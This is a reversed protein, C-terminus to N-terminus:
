PSTHSRPPSTSQPSPAPRLSLIYRILAQAQEETLHQDPMTMPITHEDWHTSTIFRRLSQASLGARAAIQYFSPTRIELGPPFEQDHAVVHCTSCILQALHEGRQVQPSQGGEAQLASGLLALLLGM